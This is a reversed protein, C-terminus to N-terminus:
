AVSPVQPEPRPANGTSPEGAPRVRYRRFRPATLHVIMEGILGLAIAQAGLSVLLVGLLMIPRDAIAEGHLKAILVDVLIVGGLAGVALGMLGFFRLPKETFKLLFVLGLVDILRRLYVGPSYIRARMALPHVRAQVEEVTFGERHALLPLFRVFDGYLPVERLVEPRMARIGSAVDHLRSAAVPRMLFHLLWNQFRNVLSDGRPWRYAVALDAGAQVREILAPLVSAEVQRYAPLTVVVRGLSSAAGARLLATEGSSHAVEILRVPEGQAAIAHLPDTLDRCWPPSLFVFEFSRGTARLPPSFEWYLQDLPAPREVVPVLVSIDVSRESM